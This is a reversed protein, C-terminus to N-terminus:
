MTINIDGFKLNKVIKKLNEFQFLKVSQNNTAYKIERKLKNDKTFPLMMLM